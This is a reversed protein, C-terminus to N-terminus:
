EDKAAISIVGPQIKKVRKGRLKQCIRARALRMIEGCRPTNRSQLIIQDLHLDLPTVGAEIELVRTNTAKHQLHWTM